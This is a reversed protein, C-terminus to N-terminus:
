NEEVPYLFFKVVIDTFRARVAYMGARPSITQTFVISRLRIREASGAVVRVGSFRRGTTGAKVTQSSMPDFVSLYATATGLVFSANILHATGDTIPIQPANVTADTEVGVVDLRVWQGASASLDSDMNGAVIVPKSTGPLIELSEGIIAQRNEDLVASTGIQNYNDDLLVVSRFVWDALGNQQVKLMAKIPVQGPNRLFVRTFGVRTAGEFALHNPPQNVAAYVQLTAATVPMSTIWLFFVATLSIKKM